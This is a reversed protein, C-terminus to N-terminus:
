IMLKKRYNKKKQFVKFNEELSFRLKAAIAAFMVPGFSKLMINILHKTIYQVDHITFRM